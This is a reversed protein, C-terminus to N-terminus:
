CRTSRSFPRSAGGGRLTMNPRFRSMEPQTKRTRSANFILVSFESVQFKPYTSTAKRRHPHMSSRSGESAGTHDAEPPRAAQSRVERMLRVRLVAHGGLVAQARQHVEECRWCQDQAHGHLRVARADLPVSESHWQSVPKLWSQEDLHNAKMALFMFAHDRFDKRTHRAVCWRNKKFLNQGAPVVVVDSLNPGINQSEDTPQHPRVPRPVTM